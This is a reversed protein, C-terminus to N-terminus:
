MEFFFDYMSCYQISQTTYHQMGRQRWSSSSQKPYFLSILALEGRPGYLDTFTEKERAASYM